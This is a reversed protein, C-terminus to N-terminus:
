MFPLHGIASDIVASTTAASPKVDNLPAANVLEFCLAADDGVTFVFSNAYTLSGLSGAWPIQSLSALPANTVWRSGPVYSISTSSSDAPLLKWRLPGPTSMFVPISSTTCVVQVTVNVSPM